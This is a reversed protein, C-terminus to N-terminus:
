FNINIAEVEELTTCANIQDEIRNAERINETNRMEAHDSIESAIDGTLAVYGKRIIGGDIIACSYRLYYDPNIGKRIATSIITSPSTAPNNTNVTRFLFYVENGFKDDEGDEVIVEMAKTDEMPAINAADRNLNLQTIKTTKAEQLEYALIESESLTIWNAFGAGISAENQFSVIRNTTPEKKYIM